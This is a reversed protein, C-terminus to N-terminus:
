QKQDLYLIQYRYILKAYVGWNELIVVSSSISYAKACRMLKAWIEQEILWHSYHSAQASILQRWQVWCIPGPSDPNWNFSQRCWSSLFQLQLYWSVASVAMGALLVVLWWQRWRALVFVDGCHHCFFSCNRHWSVVVGTIVTIDRKCTSWVLDVLVQWALHVLAQHAPKYLWCTVSTSSQLSMEVYQKIILCAWTFLASMWSAEGHSSACWCLGFVTQWRTFMFATVLVDGCVEALGHRLRGGPLWLSCLVAAVCICVPRYCGFQQWTNITESNQRSFTYFKCM